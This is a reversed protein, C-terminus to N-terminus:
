KYISKYDGKKVGHIAFFGETGSVKEIESLPLLEPFQSIDIGLKKLKELYEIYSKYLTEYVESAPQEGDFKLGVMGETVPQNNLWKGKDGRDVLLNEISKKIKNLYTIQGSAWEQKVDTIGLATEDYKDAYNKYIRQADAFTDAGLIDERINETSTPAPTTTKETASTEPAFLSEKTVDSLDVGFHKEAGAKLSNFQEPTPNPFKKLYNVAGTLDPEKTEAEVPLKGYEGEYMAAGIPKNTLAGMRLKKVYDMDEQTYEKGVFAKDPRIGLELMESEAKIKEEAIDNLSKLTELDMDQLADECDRLYKHWDDSYNVSEFILMNRTEQPETHFNALSDKNTNLWNTANEEKVKTLKEQRKQEEKLADIKNKEMKMSMGTQFGSTFGRLGYGIGM